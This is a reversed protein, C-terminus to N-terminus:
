GFNKLRSLHFLLLLHTTTQTFIEAHTMSSFNTEDRWLTMLCWFSFSFSFQVFFCIKKKNSTNKKQPGKKVWKRETTRETNFFLIFRLITTENVCHDWNGKRHIRRVVSADVVAMTLKRGLPLPNEKKVSYENWRKSRKAKKEEDNGPCLSFSFKIDTSPTILQVFFFTYVPQINSLSHFLSFASWVFSRFIFITKSRMWLKIRHIQNLILDNQTFSNCSFFTSYSSYFLICEDCKTHKLTHM